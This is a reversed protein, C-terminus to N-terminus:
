ILPKPVEVWKDETGDGHGIEYYRETATTPNTPDPNHKVLVVRGCGDQTFVQVIYGEVPNFLVKKFIAVVTGNSLVAYVDTRVLIYSIQPFAHISKVLLKYVPHLNELDAVDATYAWNDTPKDRAFRLIKVPNDLFKVPFAISTTPFM